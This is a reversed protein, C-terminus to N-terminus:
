QGGTQGPPRKKLGVMGGNTKILLGPKHIFAPEPARYVEIAEIPVDEDHSYQEFLRM